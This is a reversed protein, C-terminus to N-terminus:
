LFPRVKRFIMGGMQDIHAYDSAKQQGKNRKPAVTGKAEICDTFVRPLEPARL